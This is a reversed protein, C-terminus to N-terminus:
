ECNEAIQKLKEYAYRYELNVSAKTELSLSLHKFAEMKKGESLKVIGTFYHIECEENTNNVLSFVTREDVDGLLYKIVNMYWNDIKYNKSRELIIEKNEPLKSGARWTLAMLLMTAYKEDPHLHDVKDIVDFTRDYYKMTILENGFTGLLQYDGQVISMAEEFIENEPKLKGQVSADYYYATFYAKDHRNTTNVALEKYLGAAIKYMGKSACVNALTHLIKSDTDAKSNERIISVAKEPGDRETYFDIFGSFYYTKDNYREYDAIVKYATAPDGQRLYFLAFDVPVRGTPYREAARRFYEEAQLTRNTIESAKAFGLLAGAQYSDKGENFIDYAKETRNTEFYLEGIKNKLNVASLTYDDYQFYEKWIDIAKDYNGQKRFIHGLHKYSTVEKPALKLAREFYPVAKEYQGKGKYWMAADTLFGYIHQFYKEGEKIYDRGESYDMLKIYSTHNYTNLMQMRKLYEMATPRYYFNRYYYHFFMSGRSGPTEKKRYERMAEVCKPMRQWTPWWVYIDMINRVLFAEANKIDIANIYSFMEDYKKYLVRLKINMLKITDSEPYINEIIELTRSAGPLSGLWDNQIKYAVYYRDIFDRQLFTKLFHSTLVKERRRVKSSKDIIKKHITIWKRLLGGEDVERSVALQFEGDNEVWGTQFLSSILHLDSEITDMLLENMYSRSIGLPGIQILYEKATLFDPYEIMLKTFQDNASKGQKFTEYTMALFYRVLITNTGKRRLLVKLNDIDCKIFSSLIEALGNNEEPLVEFQKLAENEYHLALFLLGKCFRAEKGGEDVFMSAILFNSVSHSALINSLKKNDHVSKFISLWSFIESAKLILEPDLGKPKVETEIAKLAMLLNGDNFERVLAEVEDSKESKLTQIEEFPHVYDAFDHTFSKLLESFSHINNLLQNPNTSYSVEYVNQKEAMKVQYTVKYNELGLQEISHSVEALARKKKFLRAYEKFAGEMGGVLRQDVYPSHMLDFVEKPDSDKSYKALTAGAAHSPVYRHGHTDATEPGFTKKFYDASEAFHFYGYVSVGILFVVLLIIKLKKM